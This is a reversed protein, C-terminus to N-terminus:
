RTPRHGHRMKTIGGMLILTGILVMVLTLGIALANALVAVVVAYFAIGVCTLVLGIGAAAVLFGTGRTYHNRMWPPHAPHAHYPPQYPQYGNPTWSHPVGNIHTLKPTPVVAQQDQPVLMYKHGGLEFMSPPEPLQQQVPRYPEIQTM